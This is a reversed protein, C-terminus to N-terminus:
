ASEESPNADLRRPALLKLLPAAAARLAALDIEDLPGVGEVLLTVGAALPVSMLSRPVEAQLAQPEAKWFPEDDDEVSAPAAPPADNVEALQSLRRESIGLLRQQVEILSMGRAQLRKIALIQLLHRRRYLATRGRFEAPPDLLGRTTYFRITRRDPIERVRGSAQRAVGLGLAVAVEATLEDLTWLAERTM